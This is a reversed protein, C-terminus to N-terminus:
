RSTIPQLYWRGNNRANIIGFAYNSACGVSPVNPASIITYADYHESLPAYEGSQLKKWPSEPNDILKGFNNCTAGARHDHGRFIDSLCAFYGLSETVKKCYYRVAAHNMREEGAGRRGPSVQAALKTIAEPSGSPELDSWNYNSSKTIQESKITIGGSVRIATQILNAIDNFHNLDFGAHNFMLFDYFNVGPTKVGILFLLPLRMWIDEITHWNSQGIKKTFEHYFGYDKAIETYEHNGRVIHVRGPNHFALRMLVYWCEVGYQGRDAIDGIFLLHYGPALQGDDDIIHKISFDILNRQLSKFDAHLDGTLVVYNQPNIIFAKGHPGQCQYETIQKFDNMARLFLDCSVSPQFIWRWFPRLRYIKNPDVKGYPCSLRFSSNKHLRADYRNFLIANNDSSEIRIFHYHNTSSSYYVILEGATVEDTKTMSDHGAYQESKQKSLAEQWYKKPLFDHGFSNTRDPLEMAFCSSTALLALISFIKFISLFKM